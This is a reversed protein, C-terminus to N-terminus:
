LARRIYGALPLAVLIVPLISVIEGLGAYEPPIRARVFAGAALLIAFLNYLGSWVFNFVIRVFAQKSIDILAPIGDLGGTLVVDATARTIDSTSGSQVGIHAQAVAVADNHGDGCFLVAKGQSILKKVYEQKTSPSQLAAINHSSIGMAQAVDEVAKPGDGSLIHCVINRQQLDKVVAAAEPRISTRLGYIAVLDSDVTVGLTTVGQRILRNIEPCRDVDLWYPNGAKM